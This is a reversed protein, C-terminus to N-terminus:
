ASARRLDDLAAWVDDGIMVSMAAVNEDVEAPRAMGVVVAAVPAFRLPHQMAAARLSVGAERCIGALARARELLAASAPAYDFWAEPEPRALLGSNFVGAALLPIGRAELQEILGAEATGDLLTLRGAVMVVDVDAERVFRAATDCVNTGVSVARIVGEDRWAALVPVCEAIAQELHDEPDHVHVIDVRDVGLRQLSADLQRRVADASFDFVVNRGGEADVLTRGVKTAVVVERDGRQALAEGLRVESEGLGYLPATDFLGVGAELAHRATAVATDHDNGWFGTALPATGLGLTTVTLGTAGLPRHALTTM